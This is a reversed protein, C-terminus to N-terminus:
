QEVKVLAQWDYVGGVPDVIRQMVEKVLYTGGGFIYEGVCPVRSVMCFFQATEGPTENEVKIQVM